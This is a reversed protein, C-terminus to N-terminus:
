QSVSNCLHNQTCRLAFICALNFLQLSAARCCSSRLRTRVLRQGARSVMCSKVCRLRGVQRGTQLAELLADTCVLGGRSVNILVATSQLCLLAAPQSPELLSCPMHRLVSTPSCTGAAVDCIVSQM